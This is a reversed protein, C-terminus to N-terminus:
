NAFNASFQDRLPQLSEPLSGGCTIGFYTAARTAGVYLYKGFLDSLKKELSDVGVFFVAEFELGKIHRVDFVRVEADEGLSRGDVCAVARLNIDELLKNLEEAIPEVEEKSNVLIAVTPMKGIDVMQEVEQIREKLWIAIDDVANCNELLVPSVGTHNMTEPLQGRSEMNGGLLRLLESSFENLKRSQRYVINITKTSIGNAAWQIQSSSRTGWSTIRQNFDGCIFFSRTQLHTLSEMCALQLPSFDTAEDVLIQNRFQDAILGLFSSSRELKKEVFSEPVLERAKRLMLLVIADLEMTGIHRSHIEVDSRYWTGNKLAKKRFERYSAPVDSVYRRFSNIFRRFGNQTAISEGILVLSEDGPVRDGLWDQVKHARSGKPLSRKLYTYRALSRIIQKYVREAKQSTTAQSPIEDSDDGDFEDDDTEEEAQINDIFKALSSLFDPDAKFTRVLCKRIKSDSDKKLSGVFPGLDDELQDLARYVVTLPEKDATSMIEKIQGLLSANSENKLSDLIDVGKRLQSLVRSRHFDQFSEYWAIPDEEVEQRLLKLQPKLIFRGTTVASQLVGLVSRALDYRHTDWTKIHQDSAPVQERNFAEKVFHRLLDTPTFMLWSKQHSNRESGLKEMLVKEESELFVQDLKQGLRRILTTTKGTGPPGIILLQRNIPLRFIEGQFQDLIPQDRLAMATRVDHQLGERISAEASGQLLAVLDAEPDQTETKRRLALLSEVTLPGYEEGEFITPKSDWLEDVKTPKYKAKEIVEFHSDVGGIHLTIDDGVPLEALRGISSRYSALKNDGELIVTANRSIYYTSKRGAEDIAVVRSIAPEKALFQYGEINSKRISDLNEISTRDTVTNHYALVGTTNVGPKVVERSAKESITKFIELSEKAIDKIHQQQDKMKAEM